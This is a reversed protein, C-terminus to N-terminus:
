YALSSVQEASPSVDEDDDPEDIEQLVDTAFQKLNSRLNGAVGGLRNWM